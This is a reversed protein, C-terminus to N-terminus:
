VFIPVFVYILSSFPSILYLGLLTALGFLVTVLRGALLPDSIASQSLGFLWMVLPPKADYLSYFLFNPTHTERWGWDLYNAEDIFIPMLTLNIPRTALYLLLITKM